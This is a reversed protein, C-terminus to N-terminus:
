SLAANLDSLCSVLALRCGLAGAIRTPTWGDLTLQGADDFMSRPLCLTHISGAHRELARVVDGAALLGSVTVSEGFFQNEISVLHVPIGSRAAFDALLPELVPGILAGSVCYTEGGSWARPQIHARVGAWDDLLLRTLGIGNELQPYDDYSHDDPIESGALLYWEDAAYVLGLEHERRYRAQWQAVQTLLAVAEEPSNRRLRTPCFRTLGVPALGISEVDPYLDALQAVTEILTAGDNIGPVVVVQTHVTIGLDILRQLQTLIPTNGRRGLLRERIGPNTAHVSVYLPSLRQEELRAWDAENLNTLTVFSGHLFSLRYDDDQIYLTPRLNDPLQRVFCFPCHNDCEYIGDFLPDEFEIGLPDDFHRTVRRRMSKGHRLYTFELWDDAALFQVDIVDRVPQGNIALLCDGARLGARAGLEGPTVHSVRGCIPSRSTDALMRM